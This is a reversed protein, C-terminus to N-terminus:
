KYVKKIIEARFEKLHPQYYIVDDVDLSEDMDGIQYEPNLIYNCVFEISLGTQTKLIRHLSLKDISDILEQETYTKSYLDIDYM